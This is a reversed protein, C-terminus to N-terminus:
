LGHGHLDADQMGKQDQRTTCEKASNDTLDHPGGKKTQSDFLVFEYVATLVDLAAEPTADARPTYVIRPNSKLV